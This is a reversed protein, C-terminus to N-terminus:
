KILGLQKLARKVATEIHNDHCGSPYMEFTIDQEILMKGECWVLQDGELRAARILKGDSDILFQSHSLGEKNVQKYIEYHLFCPHVETVPYYNALIRITEVLKEYQNKPYKM